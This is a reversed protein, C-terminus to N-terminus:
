YCDTWHEGTEEGWQERPALEQGSMNYDRECTHCTNTFSTLYIESGCHCRAVAPETFPREYRRVVPESMGWEDRVGPKRNEADLFYTEYNERGAEYLSDVDVNGDEDCDFGIGCTCGPERTKIELRHEVHVGHKRPTIIEITMAEERTVAEATTGALPTWPLKRGCGNARSKLLGTV